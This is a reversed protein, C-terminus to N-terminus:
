FLTVLYLPKKQRRGKSIYDFYNTSVNLVQLGKEKPNFEESDDDVPETYKFTWLPLLTGKFCAIPQNLRFSNISEENDRYEDAPDEYFRFDRALDGFTNLNLMREVIKASTLMRKDAEVKLDPKTVENVEAKIPEIIDLLKAADEKEREFRRFEELM